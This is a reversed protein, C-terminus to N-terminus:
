RKPKGRGGEHKDKAPSGSGTASETASSSGGDQGQEDNDDKIDDIELVGKTHSLLEKLEGSLEGDVGAANLLAARKTFLLHTLDAIAERFEELSHVKDFAHTRKLAFYPSDSFFQHGTNPCV